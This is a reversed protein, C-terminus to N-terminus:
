YEIRGTDWFQALIKEGNKLTVTKKAFAVGVTTGIEKPISM